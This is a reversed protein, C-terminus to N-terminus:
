IRNLLSSRPPTKAKETDILLWLANNERWLRSSVELEEGYFPKILMWLKEPSKSRLFQEFRYGISL